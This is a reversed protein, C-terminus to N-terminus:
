SGKFQHFSFHLESGNSAFKALRYKAAGAVLTGESCNNLPAPM